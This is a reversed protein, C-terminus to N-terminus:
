RSSGSDKLVSFSIRWIGGVKTGLLKRQIVVVFDKIIGVQRQTDEIAVRCDDGDGIDDLHEEGARQEAIDEGLELEPTFFDEEPKDQRRHHNGM